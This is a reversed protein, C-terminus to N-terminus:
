PTEGLVHDAWAGVAAFARRSTKGPGDHELLLLEYLAEIAARSLAAQNRLHAILVTNEDAQESYPFTAVVGIGPVNTTVKWGENRSFQYYWPGETAEACLRAQKDIARQVDSM